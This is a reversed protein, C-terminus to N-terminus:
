KGVEVPKESVIVKITAVVAITSNQKDTGEMRLDKMLFMVNSNELANLFQGFNHYGSRVMVTVPIAFYKMGGVTAFDEQGERLPTIQDITLHSALAIKNIDELVLPLDQVPRVKSKLIEYDSKLQKLSNQMQGLHAQDAELKTLDDKSKQIGKNLSSLTKLEFQMIAFYDIAFVVMLIGIFVGLRIKIDLGNFRGIMDEVTVKNAM